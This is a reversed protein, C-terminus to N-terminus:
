EQWWYEYYCVKPIEDTWGICYATYDGVTFETYDINVAFMIDKPYFMKSMIKRGTPKDMNMAGYLSLITFSVSEFREGYELDKGDENLNYAFIISNEPYSDEEFSDEVLSYRSYSKGGKNIVTLYIVEDAYYRRLLDDKMRRYTPHGLIVCEHWILDKTSGTPSNNLDRIVTGPYRFEYEPTITTSFEKIKFNLEVGWDEASKELHDLVPQIQNQTFSKAEDSTWSSENDDMYFLVVLVDGELKKNIGLDYYPRVSASDVVRDTVEFPFKDTEGPFIGDEYSNESLAGAIEHFIAYGLYVPSCSVFFLCLTTITIIMALAKIISSKM